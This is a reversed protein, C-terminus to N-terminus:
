NMELVANMVSRVSGALTLQQTVLQYANHAIQEREAPHELYYLITDVLSEPQAVVFHKGPKYLPVHPLTPTSIVLAKNAAAKNFRFSFGPDYWTPLINLVIQARNLFRTRVDGYIFPNEVNDAIYMTRGYRALQERVAILLEGRRKTRRQGLWLVDIDRELRLDDYWQPSVGWPVYKAPLGHTLFIKAFIASSDCLLNLSGNKHAHLYDGVYRLKYMKTNLRLFLANRTIARAWRGNRDSMRDIGSRIGSLASLIAWPININPISEFNWHILLPRKGAAMQSIQQPIHQFRGYPAFTFVVNVDQPVPADYMFSRTQYGLKKLEYCIAATNEDPDSWRVVAVRCGPQIKHRLAINGVM